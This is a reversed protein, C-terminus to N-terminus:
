VYIYIHTHAHINTNSYETAICTHLAHTTHLAIHHQTIYPPHRSAIHHPAIYHSARMCAHMYTHLTQINANCTHMHSHTPKCTICAHTRAHVAHMYNM